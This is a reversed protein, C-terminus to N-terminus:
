CACSRMKAAFGKLLEERSLDRDRAGITVQGYQKLQETVEPFLERTVFIHVSM